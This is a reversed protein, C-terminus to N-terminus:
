AMLLALAILGARKIVAGGFLLAFQVAVAMFAAVLSFAEDLALALVAIMVERLCLPSDIEYAANGKLVVTKGLRKGCDAYPKIFARKKLGM